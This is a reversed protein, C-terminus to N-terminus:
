GRPPGPFARALAALCREGVEGRATAELDRGGQPAHTLALALDAPPLLPAVRSPWEVLCVAHANFCDALGASEWEEPDAFRYFDFHYFYISSLPYHEVLAYSPSKIPGDVGRARLVGRVLTTKGSALEGELTVLAGGTLEPAIAAGVRTTAAADALHLKLSSTPKDL